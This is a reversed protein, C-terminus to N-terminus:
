NNEAGQRRNALERAEKGSIHEIDLELICLRPLTEEIEQRSGEPDAPSYKDGLLAAAARIEAPDQLIRISGFVIVSRYWTTRKEPAVQDQEVVCFSAKGCRRVADIKHGEQACHFYLKGQHYIFSLPVAYPYGEDGALALVGSSAKELIRINEEQPLLQKNRRMERFM